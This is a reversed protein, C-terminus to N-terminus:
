ACIGKVTRAPISAARLMQVCLAAFGRSTAVKASLVKEVDASQPDSDPWHYMNTCMWNYIARAADYTDLEGVISATINAVSSVSSFFSYYKMAQSSGDAQERLNTNNNLTDSAAFYYNHGSVTLKMSVPLLPAYSSSEIAAYSLVTFYEGDAMEPLTMRARKRDVDTVASASYVKAGYLYLLFKGCMDTDAIDGITLTSGSISIYLPQGPDSSLVLKQSMASVDKTCVACLIISCILVTFFKKM